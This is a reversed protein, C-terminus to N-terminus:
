GAYEPNKNETDVIFKDKAKEFNRIDWWRFYVHKNQEDLNNFSLRVFGDSGGTM